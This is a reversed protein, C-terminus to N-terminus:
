LAAPNNKLENIMGKTTATRNMAHTSGRIEYSQAYGRFEVADATRDQRYGM